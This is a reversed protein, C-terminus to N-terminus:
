AFIVLTEGYVYSAGRYTGPSLEETSDFFNQRRIENFANKDDSSLISFTPDHGFEEVFDAVAHVM